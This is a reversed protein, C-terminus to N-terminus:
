PDEGGFTAGANANAAGHALVARAFQASTYPRLGRAVRQSNVAALRHALAIGTSNDIEVTRPFLRHAPQSM